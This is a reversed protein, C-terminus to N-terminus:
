LSGGARPGMAEFCRDYREMMRATWAELDFREVMRSRAERASQEIEASPRALLEACAEALAEPSRKAVRCSGLGECINLHGPLDTAVVPLGSCIAEIVAFPLGEVRSTSVFLDSAGYLTRVDESSEVVRAHDELGLRAIGARAEDGGRVTLALVGAREDVRDLLSRITALYLDGDKLHWNWAFHLLIRAGEPLGLRERAALREEPAVLPFRATEIGNGVVAVRDPSAGAAIAGEAPDPGSALIEAVSRGFLRYKLASQLRRRLSTYLPTHLHWFVAADSRGRAALVAPVDYRTFHTHVLVPGRHEDLRSGLLEATKRRSLDPVTRVEAASESRLQEFWPRNEARPPFGLEATWGREAAAQAIARVM